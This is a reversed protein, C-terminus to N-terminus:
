WPCAPRRWPRRQRHRLASPRFWSEVVLATFIITITIATIMITIITIVVVVVVVAIAIIIIMIINCHRNTVFQTMYM